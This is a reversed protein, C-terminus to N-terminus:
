AARELILWYVGQAREVRGASRWGAPIDAFATGLTTTGVIVLRNAISTWLELDELVRRMADGTFPDLSVVDWTSGLEAATQAYTWADAAVFAWHEPYLERMQELRDRDTDVCTTELESIAFHIADNHGLFAASFLVLGTECGALLDAPYVRAELAVAELTEYTVSGM